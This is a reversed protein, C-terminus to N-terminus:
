AAIKLKSRGTFKCLAPLVTERFRHGNFLGYHGSGKLMLYSKKSEALSSALDLAARTQGLGCIDDLEGEVAFIPTRRIAKPDVKTGRFVMKGKPLLAEQFVVRLTQLYFEATLDMVSLYEAYFSAIKEESEFDGKVYHNMADHISAQHREPNMSLFAMLQMFGPYVLRREGAFGEPVISLAMKEFWDEEHGTAYGNVVTPSRRVDIPSGMITLSAPLLHHMNPNEELLAVAAYAPVGSQCIGVAHFEPGLHEFCRMLTGIYSDMDFGGQSIPVDRASMWDTVYVDFFPLSDRVTDRLLTAYHGAMPAILLLSPLKVPNSKKFHLLKCFPTEFVTEESVGMSVGDVSTRRIGFAPKQYSQTMRQLLRLRVTFSRQIKPLIPMNAYLEPDLPPNVREDLQDAAMGLWKSPMEMARYWANLATYLYRNDVIPFM